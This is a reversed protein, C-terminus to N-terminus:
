AHGVAQDLGARRRLEAAIEPRMLNVGGMEANLRMLAIKMAACEDCLDPEVFALGEARAEDRSRRCIRCM